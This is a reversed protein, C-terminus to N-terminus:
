FYTNDLFNNFRKAMEELTATKGKNKAQFKKWERKFDEHVQDSTGEYIKM